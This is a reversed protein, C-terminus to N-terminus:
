VASSSGETTMQPRPKAKRNCSWAMLLGLLVIVLCTVQAATIHVPGLFASSAIGRAVEESTGARFFEFIFRSLGYACLFLGFSVGQKLKVAREILTLALAGVLMLATDVLQAPVHRGDLGEFHVGYWATTPRGYCCGNFLCGIRGIAQAVLVPVGLVDLFPLLPTKTKKTWFLLGFFGFLLGGFSTLGEFRLSFLENLHQTYYGLNQVIYTIRAGLIGPLVLWFAADWIREPDIGFRPARRRALYAAVIVGIVLLVGYSRVSFGFPKFLVPRM